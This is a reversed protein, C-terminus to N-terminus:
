NKTTSSQSFSTYTHLLKSNQKAIEDAHDKQTQFHAAKKYWENITSPITDISMIHCMLKPPIRASYYGILVNNDTVQIQTIYNQFNSIYCTLSPKYRYAGDRGKLKIIQKTSLWTVANGTTDYHKFFTEFKLAFDAFTGMNIISGSIASNCFTAAWSLTAGKTMFSLAFAIKKTDTNYVNANVNLYFLISQLWITAKEASSDYAKPISICLKTPKNSM